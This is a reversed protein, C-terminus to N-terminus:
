IPYVVSIRILEICRALWPLVQRKFEETFPVENLFVWPYKHVRNFRDELRRVSKVAGEVDTNRALMLLTANARDGFDPV